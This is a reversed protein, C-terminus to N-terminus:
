PSSKEIKEIIKNIRRKGIGYIYSLKANSYGKFKKDIYIMKDRNNYKIYIAEKEKIEQYLENLEEKCKSISKEMEIITHMVDDITKRPPNGSVMEKTTDVASPELSKRQKAISRRYSKIDSELEEKREKLKILDM